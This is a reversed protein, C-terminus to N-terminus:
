HFWLDWCTSCSHGEPATVYSCVYVVGSTCNPVTVAVAQSTTAGGAFTWQLSSPYLGMLADAAAQMDTASTSAAQKAFCGLQTNGNGSCVDSPSVGLSSCTKVSPNASTAATVAEAFAQYVPGAPIQM